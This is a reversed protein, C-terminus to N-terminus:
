QCCSGIQWSENFNNELDQIKLDVIFDKILTIFEDPVVGLMGAGPGALIRDIESSRVGRLSTQKLVEKDTGCPCGYRGWGEGRVKNEIQEFKPFAKNLIVDPLLWLHGGVANELALADTAAKDWESGPKGIQEGLTGIILRNTGQTAAPDNLTYEPDTTHDRSNRAVLSVIEQSVEHLMLGMLLESLSGKLKSGAGTPMVKLKFLANRVAPDDVLFRLPPSEIVKAQGQYIVLHATMDFGPLGLPKWDPIDANPNMSVVQIESSPTITKSFQEQNLVKYVVKGQFGTLEPFRVSVDFTDGNGYYVCGDSGIAPYQHFAMGQAAKEACCKPRPKTDFGDGGTYNRFEVNLYEIEIDVWKYGGPDARAIVTQAQGAPVNVIEQTKLLPLNYGHNGGTTNYFKRTIVIMEPKTKAAAIRIKVEDIHAHSDSLFYHQTIGGSFFSSYTDLSSTVSAETPWPVSAIDTKVFGLVKSDYTEQEIKQTLAVSYEIKEAGNTLTRSQGADKSPDTRNFLGYFSMIPFTSFEPDWPVPTSSSSTGNKYTNTTIHTGPSDVLKSGKKVTSVVSTSSWSGTNKYTLSDTEDASVTKAVTKGFSNHRSFSAKWSEDTDTKTLMTPDTFTVTETDEIYYDYDTTSTSIDTLNEEDRIRKRQAYRSYYASQPDDYLGDYGGAIDCSSKRTMMSYVPAAGQSDNVAANFAGDTKAKEYDARMTMGNGAVDAAPDIEGLLVTTQGTTFLWHAYAKEWDDPIDDGDASNQPILRLINTATTTTEVTITGDSALHRAFVERPFLSALPAPTATPGTKVMTAAIRVVSGDPTVQYPAPGTGLLRSNFTSPGSVTEPGLNPQKVRTVSGNAKFLYYEQYTRGLSDEKPRSILANGDSSYGLISVTSADLPINLVYAQGDKFQHIEPVNYGPNGGQPPVTRLMFAIADGNNNVKSWNTTEPLKGVFTGAENLLFFEGSASRHLRRTGSPSVSVPTPDLTDGTALAPELLPVHNGQGDDQGNDVMFARLGSEVASWPKWGAESTITTADPLLFRTVVTTQDEGAYTTATRIVSGHVKGTQPDLHYTPREVTYSIPESSPNNLGYDRYPVPLTTRSPSGGPAPPKTLYYQTTTSFVENWSSDSEFIYVPESREIIRGSDDADSYTGDGPVPDRTEIRYIGTPITGINFEQRNTVLDGDPDLNADSPDLPLLGWTTEWGDSMGDGDSDTNRIQTGNQYEDLDSLGDGDTDADPSNKVFPNLDNETEVADPLGDGDTDRDPTLLLYHSAGNRMAEVLLTGNQNASLIRTLSYGSSVPLIKDLRFTKGRRWLTPVYKSEVDNNARREGYMEGTATLQQITFEYSPVDLGKMSWTSTAPNFTAVFPQNKAYGDVVVHSYGGVVGDPSIAGAYAYTGGPLTGLNTVTGDSKWVVARGSGTTPSGAVVPDANNSIGVAKASYSGSINALITTSAVATATSNLKWLIVRDYGNILANAAIHGHDTLFFPVAANIASNAPEPLVVPKYTQGNEPMKWAILERANLNSAPIRKGVAFKGGPSLQAKNLLSSINNANAAGSLTVPYATPSSWYWFTKTGGTGSMGLASGNPAHAMATTNVTTPNGQVNGKYLELTGGAAGQPVTWASPQSISNENTVRLYVSDSTTAAPAQGLVASTLAASTAPFPGLERIRYSPAGQPDTNLRFEQLNTYGDHDYDLLADTSDNYDLGNALEWTNPIGDGDTDIGDRTDITQGNEPDIVPPHNPDTRLYFEGLNTTGDGDADLHGDKVAPDSGYFAEWDDPMGDGDTDDDPILIQLVTATKQLILVGNDCIKTKLPATSGAPLLKLIPANVSGSWLHTATGTTGLLVQPDNSIGLVHPFGAKLHYDGNYLFAGSGSDQAFNYYGWIDHIYEETVTYLYKGAYEGWDNLATSNSTTEYTQSQWEDLWVTNEEDGPLAWAIYGTDLSKRIPRTIGDVEATGYHYVFYEPYEAYPDVPNGSEDFFDDPYVFVPMETWEITSMDLHPEDIVRNDVLNGTWVPSIDIRGSPLALFPQQRATLPNWVDGVYEGFDNVDVYNVVNTSSALAAIPVQDPGAARLEDSSPSGTSYLLYGTDGIRRPFAATSSTATPNLFFQVSQGGSPSSPTWLFGKNGSHIYYGVVQGRSNVDLGTLQTDAPIGAPPTVRTWQKTAPLYTHLNVSSASSDSRVGVVSVLTMGNKATEVLTVSTLVTYDPPNPITALEYTGLPNGQRGGTDVSLDYEQKATLGDFDFDSSADAANNPNHSNATEWTNPIGDGDSDTSTVPFPPTAVASPAPPGGLGNGRFNATQAHADEHVYLIGLSLLVAAVTGTVFAHFIRVPLCNM